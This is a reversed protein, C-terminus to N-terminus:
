SSAPKETATAAGTKHDEGFAHITTEREAHAKLEEASEGFDGPVAEVDYRISGDARKVVGKGHFKAGPGAEGVLKVIDELDMNLLDERNFTKLVTRQRDDLSM